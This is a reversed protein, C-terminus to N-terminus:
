VTVVPKGHMSDPVAVGFAELISPALDWIAVPRDNLKLNSLFVGPVASPDMCHDSAWPDTRNGVIGEPFKGLIAEDSIRYGPAYGVLLDPALHTYPGSYLKESDYVQRVVRKGGQPDTVQLLRAAIEAKIRLAEDDNVSGNKERGKRNIYIGNIGLAYAKTEAWNVYRFFEIDRIREPRTLKLFGQEFLWTSLHFERTFSSFGHDSLAFFTTRSDVKELARGLAHDMTKYLFRIAQKVEASANPEYLPHGPDMCRMLMHSCQDISSFYYVLCGEQFRSLEYEFARQSEALVLQAQSWFDASTLTGESLAKTDAPLGQTYFRGLAETLEPAYEAPSCIPLAPSAPDINVPSAYIELEPHVKKVFFRAIGQASALLPVFSFNLPLWESWEGEALLMSTGEIEIKVLNKEPDRTFTVPVEVSGAGQHFPNKPGKLATKVKHDQLSITTVQGSSFKEAGPPAKECYLTYRGYGGLLDPTGMGSLGRVLPGSDEVPFNAPLAFITSPIGHEALIDWFAKGGRKLEVRGSDLPIKWDGIELSRKGDYSRSTSLYPQFSKPDRHIFDYIGHGGPNTGTIFSSWAVPSQPPMTTQLDGFHGSAALRSFNPLEGNKMMQRTLVPDMGDIGLVLVRKGGRHSIVQPASAFATSPTSALSALAIAGATQASREIFRRRSLKSM